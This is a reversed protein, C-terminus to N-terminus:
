AILAKICDFYNHADITKFKHPLPFIDKESKKKNLKIEISLYNKKYDELVLDVEPGGYERYFYMSRQVQTNKKRKEIESIIYNEFLGGADPRLDLMRFDKILINRIGLDYFYLKRNESVAKRTNTKFSPLPILIYNKIFIEIYNSVTSVNAQLSNAIERVSVESGIQLAIKTLIDKALKENKLEYIDIIDKLVYADLINQLLNIKESESLQSTYIEPYAGYIQLNRFLNNEFDKKGYAKVKTNDAIEFISFPLCFAEEFRGALTDFDQGAKHKLESSGTAIVKVSFEDYLIKLAITAEPYNQVEDILIIKHELVLNRLVERDPLFKERDSLVDFNFIPVSFEASLKKLLTTKGSRRPGWIFLVKHSKGSLYKAIKEEIFRRFMSVSYMKASIQIIDIYM